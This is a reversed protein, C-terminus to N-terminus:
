NQWLGPPAPDWLIGNEDPYLVREIGSAVARDHLALAAARFHVIVRMAELPSGDPLRRAAAWAAIAAWDSPEVAGTDEAVIAKYGIKKAADYMTLPPHAELSSAFTRLDGADNYAAVVPPNIVDVFFRESRACSAAVAVEDNLDRAWCFVVIGNHESRECGPPTPAALLQEVEKQFRPNKSFYTRDFADVLHGFRFPERLRPPRVAPYALGAQEIFAEPGVRVGAGLTDKLQCLFGVMGDLLTARREDLAPQAAQLRLRLTGTDLSFSVYSGQFAPTLGGEGHSHLVYIHNLWAASAALVEAVSEFPVLPAAQAGFYRFDLWLGNQRLAALILELPRPDRWWWPEGDLELQIELTVATMGAM